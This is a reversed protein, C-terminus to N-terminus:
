VDDGACASRDRGVGRGDQARADHGDGLGPVGAGARDRLRASRQARDQVDQGGDKSAIVDAAYAMAIYGTSTRELGIFDIPGLLRIGTSDGSFAVETVASGTAKFVAGGFHFTEDAGQSVIYGVDPSEYYIGSVLDNGKHYVHVDPNSLDDVLPMAKWGGAGSGGGGGGGGGGSDMAACAAISALSAVVCCAHIARGGRMSGFVSVLRGNGM